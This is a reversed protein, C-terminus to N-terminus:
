SLKRTTKEKVTVRILCIYFLIQRYVTYFLTVRLIGQITEKNNSSKIVDNIIKVSVVVHIYSYYGYVGGGEGSSVYSVHQEYQQLM